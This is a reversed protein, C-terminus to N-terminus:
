MRWSSEKPSDLQGGQGCGGRGMIGPTGSLFLVLTFQALNQTVDLCLGPPAEIKAKM